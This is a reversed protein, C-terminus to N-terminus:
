YGSKKNKLEELLSLYHKYRLPNIENKELQEKVKCGPENDHVCSTFKCEGAAFEPFFFRLTDRDIEEDLKLSSFGPTDLLYGGVNLDLLEVHRTTHKGRNVKQSLTGTEMKKASCLRNALTSKGVGSPGALFATKCFLEQELQDLIAEDARFTLCLYPTKEYVGLIEDLKDQTVLDAKTICIIPQVEKVESAILLKDLMLLDPNPNKAAFVILAIDVNSVAPRIFENKRPFIKEIAMEGEKNQVLEVYDGVVPKIKQHRFVGRAKSELLSTSGEPKVYYFGGIGKIIRGLIRNQKM